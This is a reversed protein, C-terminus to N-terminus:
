VITAVEYDGVEPVIFEIVNGSGTIALDKGAALLQVTSACSGALLMIKVTQQGLPYPETYGAAACLTTIAERRTLDIMTPFRSEM